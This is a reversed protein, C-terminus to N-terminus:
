KNKTQFAGETVPFDTSYAQGTIYANGSGDVALGSAGDGVCTEYGRSIGSGGLYTSYALASGTPNLKTVFANSAPLYTCAPNAAGKNTTEFAGPTVPFDTSNTTGTIYANGSRDLALGNASDGGSGGLYTSYDLASGTPNLKTVFGVRYGAKTTQFAGKTVPFDASETNGAVYANGSGDVALALAYSGRDTGGLFTSYDLASGNPNLKTVYSDIGYGNVTYNTTQFAGNTVPFDTSTAQGTVYVSGESDVAIATAGDAAYSGNQGGGLYTSYALVPDIVLPKGRDYSGLRFGVTRDARRQFDGRVAARQGDVVQYVAPKHFVVAGGEATVVLDGDAGLRLGKAGSFMLRIPKPDAGAAVVFDYELQSQNGYYVLDVGPYVDAYKVKAYNSVNTRWRKPDNGIFYNSKGPLEEAGTVAASANAGVLRMRIASDTTQPHAPLAPDANRGQPKELEQGSGNKVKASPLPLLSPVAAADFFPRQAARAGASSFTPSASGFTPAVRASASRGVMDPRTGTPAVGKAKHLSLVAEDATFFLTYGRGRSLFKVRGDTQGQNAEFSLPLKGYNEALHMKQGATAAPSATAKPTTTSGPGAKMVHPRFIAAGALIMLMAATCSYIPKMTEGEPRRARAGSCLVVVIGVFMNHFNM